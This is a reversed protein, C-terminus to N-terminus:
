LSFDSNLCFNAEQSTNQQESAAMKCHLKSNKKEFKKPRVKKKITNGSWEYNNRPRNKQFWIERERKHNKNVHTLKVKIKHTKTKQDSKTPFPKGM